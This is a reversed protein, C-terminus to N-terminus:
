SIPISGRETSGPEPREGPRPTRNARVQVASLQAAVAGMQIDTIIRDEDGSRAIDRRVPTKGVAIVSLHYSGGGDPFLVSYRGDAGTTRSRTIGTEASTVQVKANAIPQSDPGFVRGMIIDTTSGVQASASGAGGLLVAGAAACIIAIRCKM